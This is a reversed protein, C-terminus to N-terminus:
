PNREPPPEDEGVTGHRAKLTSWRAPVVPTITTVEVPIELVSSLATGGDCEQYGAMVVFRGVNGYVPDYGFDYICLHRDWTWPFEFTEGPALALPECPDFLCSTDEFCTECADCGAIECDPAGPVCTSDRLVWTEFGCCCVPVSAATGTVNRVTYLTQVEDFFGYELRDVTLTFLFPGDRRSVSVQGEAAGPALLVLALSVVALM